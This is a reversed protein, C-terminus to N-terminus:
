ILPAFHKGKVVSQHHLMVTKSGELSHKKYFYQLSSRIARFGEAITSKPKLHVVMNNTLDNKGVVGLLPIKSLNELVQPNHLKNDFFTVIFALLLVPMIGGLVAFLYRSSLKLDIPTAGTDKAPDIILIDSVSASKIIDAEGKKALFVNYTQESLSYQRQIDFLQQQAKPLKRMEADEKAIKINLLQLERNLENSVSSINEIIVTKLGEIKDILIQLFPLM